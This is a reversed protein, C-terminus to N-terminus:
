SALRSPTQLSCNLLASTRAMPVLPAPMPISAFDIPRIVGREDTILGFASGQDLAPSNSAPAMTPTAGGNDQLPGLLPNKNIQDGPASFGCQNTADLNFGLSIIAGGEARCDNPGGPRRL